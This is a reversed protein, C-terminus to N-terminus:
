SLHSTARSAASSAAAPVHPACGRAGAAAARRAASKAPQVRLPAPAAGTGPLPSGDALARAFSVRLPPTEERRTDTGPDTAAAAAASATPPIDSEPGRFRVESVPAAPPRPPPRANGVRADLRSPAVAFPPNDDDDAEAAPRPPSVTRLGTPALPGIPATLPGVGRALFYRDLFYLALSRSAPPWTLVM